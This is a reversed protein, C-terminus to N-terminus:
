GCMETGAPNYRPNGIPSDNKPVANLSGLSRRSADPKSCTAPPYRRGRKAACAQRPRPVLGRPGAALRVAAHRPDRVGRVMWLTVPPLAVPTLEHLRGRQMSRMPRNMCSFTTIRIQCYVVFINNEGSVLTPSTAERCREAYSYKSVQSPRRRSQPSPRNFSQQQTPNKSCRLRDEPSGRSGVAANRAAGPMSAPKASRRMSDAVGFM